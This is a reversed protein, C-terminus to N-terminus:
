KKGADFLKRKEEKSLGDYGTRKMKDLIADIVEAQVKKQRNYRMDINENKTVKFKNKPKFLGM